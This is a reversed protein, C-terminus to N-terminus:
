KIGKYQSNNVMGRDSGNVNYASYITIDNEPSNVTVTFAVKTKADSEVDGLICEKLEGTFKTVTGATAMVGYDSSLDCTGSMGNEDYWDVFISGTQSGRNDVYVIQTIGPGYPMYPVHVISGNLTWEGANLNSGADFEGLTGTALIGGTLISGMIPANYYEYSVDATFSQPAKLAAAGTPTIVFTAATTLTGAANYTYTASMKDAAVVTNLSDGNAVVTTNSFDGKLVFVQNEVTAIEPDAGVTSAAWTIGPTETAATITVVDTTGTVFAKREQEIDVVQDARGSADISSGGFQNASTAVPKTVKDGDVNTGDVLKFDVSFNVGGALIDAVDVEYGTFKTISGITNLQDSGTDLNTLRYTASAGNSDLLGWVGTATAGPTGSPIVTEMDVSAPWTVSTNGSIEVLMRDGVQLAAGHKIEVTAGDVTGVKLELGQKSFTSNPVTVTPTALAASCVSALALALTTKKFSM